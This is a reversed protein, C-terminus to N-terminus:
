FIRRAKTGKTHSVVQKKNHKNLRSASLFAGVPRWSPYSVDAAGAIERDKANLAILTVNEAGLIEAAAKRMGIDDETDGIVVARGYARDTLLERVRLAKEERTMSVEVRWGIDGCRVRTGVVQLHVDHAAARQRVKELLFDFSKSVVAFDCDDRVASLARWASPYCLRSVLAAARDLAAPTCCPLIRHVFFRILRGDASSLSLRKERYARNLRRQLKQLRMAERLLRFFCYPRSLNILCLAVLLDANAIGRCLAPCLGRYLTGDFDLIVLAKHTAPRTM